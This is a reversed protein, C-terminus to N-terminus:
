QPDMMDDKVLRAVGFGTAGYDNGNYFMFRGAQTDVISAFSRTESEWSEDPGEFRLMNDLRHWDTGNKSEAYALDYGQTSNRVSLWMRCVGGESIVWPRGFGFEEPRRPVLSRRGGGQWNIPSLSTLVMMDYTPTPKGNITMQASGGMYAFVWRDSHQYVFGGTRVLLEGSRRDLIPAESCRDFTVGDDTSKAMGTFLLYRVSESRQWGAYFLYLNSGYFVLSLPSVGHEDFMGAKGLDLSPKESVALVQTPDSASVDVYGIRGMNDRDRFALFVRVRDPSVLYATPIYAHSARWSGNGTEHYVRGLREWTQMGLGEECFHRM